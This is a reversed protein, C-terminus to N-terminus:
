WGHHDAYERDESFESEVYKDERYEDECDNSEDACDECDGNKKGHKCDEACFENFSKEIEDFIEKEIKEVHDDVHCVECANDFFWGHACKKAGDNLAEQETSIKNAKSQTKNWGQYKAGNTAM